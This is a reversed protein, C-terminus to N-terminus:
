AHRPEWGCMARIRDALQPDEVDVVHLPTGVTGYLSAKAAEARGISTLAIPNTHGGTDRHVAWGQATLFAFASNVQQYTLGTARTVTPAHHDGYPDTHLHALVTACHDSIDAM